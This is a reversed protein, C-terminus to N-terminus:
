ESNGSPQRGNKNKENYPPFCFTGLRTTLPARFQQPNHRIPSAAGHSPCHPEPAAKTNAADWDAFLPIMRSDSCDFGFPSVDRTTKAAEAPLKAEPL